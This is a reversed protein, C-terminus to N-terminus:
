WGELLSRMGAPVDMGYVAQLHEPALADSMAGRSVIKGQHMLLGHTGYKRALSLDHVVSMVARGPTELWCAILDFLQQQYGLDLHNAPEDLLLIRPQQALVQALFMRQREGGSLTSLRQRRHPLLGTLAMASEIQEEDEPAPASFLGQRHAYRGMAVVEEVTFDYSMDHHQLMVGINKALAAPKMKRVNRGDLTVLGTYPAGQTVARLLTSKGAGNPGCLMLWQHQHLEFSVEDVVTCGQYRVTIEKGQLM